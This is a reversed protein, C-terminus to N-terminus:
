HDITSQTDPITPKGTVLAVRYLRLLEEDEDPKETLLEFPFMLQLLTVTLFCDM